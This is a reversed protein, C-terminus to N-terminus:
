VVITRSVVAEDAQQQSQHYAVLRRAGMEAGRGRRWEWFIGAGSGSAFVGVGSGSFGLGLRM